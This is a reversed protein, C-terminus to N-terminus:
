FLPSDAPHVASTKRTPEPPPSPAAVVASPTAIPQSIKGVVQEPDGVPLKEWWDDWTQGRAPGALEGAGRVASVRRGDPETWQVYEGDRSIGAATSGFNEDVTLIEAVLSWTPPPDCAGCLFIQPAYISSWFQASGCFPCFDTPTSNKATPIKEAHTQLPSFNESANKEDSPRSAAIYSPQQGVSENNGRLSNRENEALTPRCEGMRTNKRGFFVYGM